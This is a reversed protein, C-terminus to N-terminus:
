PGKKRVYRTGVILSLSLLLGVGAVVLIASWISAIDRPRISLITRDHYGGFVMVLVVPICIALQVILGIVKNRLWAVSAAVAIAGGCVWHSFSYIRAPHVIDGPLLMACLAVYMPLAALNLASMFLALRRM